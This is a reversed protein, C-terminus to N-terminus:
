LSSESLVFAIRSSFSRRAASSGTTTACSVTRSPTVSTRRAGLYHSTLRARTQPAGARPYDGAANRQGVTVGFPPVSIARRRIGASLAASGSQREITESAAACP